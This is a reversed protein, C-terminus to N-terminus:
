RQKIKQKRDEYNIFKEFFVQLDREIGARKDQLIAM